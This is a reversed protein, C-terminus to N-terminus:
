APREFEAEARGVLLDDLIGLDLGGVRFPLVHGDGALLLLGRRRAVDGLGHPERFPVPVHHALDLVVDAPLLLDVLQDVLQLLLRHLQLAEVGVSATSISWSSRDRIALAPLASATSPAAPTGAKAILRPIDEVKGPRAEERRPRSDNRSGNSSVRGASRTTKRTM